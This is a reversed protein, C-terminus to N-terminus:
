LDVPAHSQIVPFEQNTRVKIGRLEQDRLTLRKDWEGGGGGGGM